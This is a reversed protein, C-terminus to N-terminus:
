NIINSGCVAPYSIIIIGYNKINKQQERERYSKVSVMLSLIILITISSCFIIDGIYTVKDILYICLLSIISFLVFLIFYITM